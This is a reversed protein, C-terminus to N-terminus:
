RRFSHGGGSAKECSRWISDNGEVSGSGKSSRRATKLTTSIWVGSPATGETLALPLIVSSSPVSSNSSVSVCKPASSQVAVNFQRIMKLFTMIGQLCGLSVTCIQFSLTSADSSTSASTVRSREFSKRMARFCFRTTSKGFPERCMNWGAKGPSTRPTMSRSAMRRGASSTRSRGAPGPRSSGFWSGNRSGFSGCRRAWRLRMALKAMTLDALARAPPKNAPACSKSISLIKAIAPLPIKAAIMDIRM